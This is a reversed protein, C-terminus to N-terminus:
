HIAPPLISSLWMIHCVNTQCDQQANRTAKTVKQRVKEDAEKYWHQNMPFQPIRRSTGFLIAVIPNFVTLLHGVDKNWADILPSTRTHENIHTRTFAVTPMSSSLLNNYLSHNRNSWLVDTSWTERLRSQASPSHCPKQPGKTQHPCFWLWSVSCAVFRRFCFFDTSPFAREFIQCRCRRLDQKRLRGSLFGRKTRFLLSFGHRSSYMRAFAGSLLHTRRFSHRHKTQSPVM